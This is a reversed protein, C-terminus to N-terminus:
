LFEGDDQGTKVPGAKAAIAAATKSDMAEARDGGELMDNFNARAKKDLTKAMYTPLRKVASSRLGVQDWAKAPVLAKAAEPDSLRKVGKRALAQDAM